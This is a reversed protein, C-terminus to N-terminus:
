LVVKYWTKQVDKIIKIQEPTPDRTHFMLFGSLIILTIGILLLTLKVFSNIGGNENLLFWLESIVRFISKIMLPLTVSLILIVTAKAGELLLYAAIVTIIAVIIQIRTRFKAM